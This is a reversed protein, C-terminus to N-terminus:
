MRSHIITSYNWVAVECQFQSSKSLQFFFLVTTKKTLSSFLHLWSQNKKWDIKEVEEIKNKKQLNNGRACSEYDLPNDPFFASLSPKFCHLIPHNGTMERGDFNTRARQVPFKKKWGNKKMENGRMWSIARQRQEERLKISSLIGRRKNRM